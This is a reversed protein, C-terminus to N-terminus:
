GKAGLQAEGLRSLRAVAENIIEHKKCFAFRVLSRYRAHDAPKVFATVPIAVVGALEPLVRCLETADAYGLPTADALAFYSGSPAYVEFGASQLGSLLLDRKSQLETRIQTYFEDPLALASAIAPQFPAGSVFTLYQKVSRIAAIIEARATVWGIKWGTLSFTKGASSITITREAAGPLTTIPTHQADFTLHEYVEDTVIWANHKHALEVIKVLVERTFVAGTPNHPTNILIIRTKDSFADELRTLDPQFVPPELDVTVHNAGSLGIIAAYSDYFPQFTIVDDEPKLLALLTAALAETAGTTVLVESAPDVDLTYFRKQHASVAALLDPHGSGPSYQNIGQDIAAKAAELIAAPGDEDPFGQGLNIAGTTLALQSMEAFITPSPEGAADLLGSFQAARQWSGPITM